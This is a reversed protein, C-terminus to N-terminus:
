KYGLNELRDEVVGDVDGDDTVDTPRAATAGIHERLRTDLRQRVNPRDDGVDNQEGPDRELDYLEASRESDSQELHYKYRPTRAAFRRVSASDDEGHAQAFAVPSVDDRERNASSSPTEM